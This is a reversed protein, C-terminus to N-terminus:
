LIVPDVQRFFMDGSLNFCNFWLGIRGFVTKPVDREILDPLRNKQASIWSRSHPLIAGKKFEFQVIIGRGCTFAKRQVKDKNSM